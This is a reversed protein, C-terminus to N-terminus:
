RDNRKDAVKNWLYANYFWLRSNVFMDNPTVPSLLNLEEDPQLTSAARLLADRLEAGSTPLGDPYEWGSILARMHLAQHLAECLELGPSANGRV